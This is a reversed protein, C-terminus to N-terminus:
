GLKEGARLKASRARINALVESESAVIPKRTIILLEAKHHCTCVPQRPPCVCTAATQRFIQKVLRDELSHFTIIVIRAGPALMALASDLFKRLNGLEDNVAIRIAQFTRTAPHLGKKFKKGHQKRGLTRSVVEVLELTSHLPRAHVISHAIQRSYREEGFEFIINALENESLDNILDSATLSQSSDMRMDLPGDKLFSFGREANDLQMSSVGLDAIIGGSITDLSQQALIEKLNSYNGHVLNAKGSFDLKLSEITIPDRDIGIITGQKKEALRDVIARLHGGAGITADVYTLGPRM